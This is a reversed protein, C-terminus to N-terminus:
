KNEKETQAAAQEKKLRRRYARKRARAEAAEEVEDEAKMAKHIAILGVFGVGLPIIGLIALSVALITWISEAQKNDGFSNNLPQSAQYRITIPKGESVSCSYNNPLVGESSYKTGDVEFSYTVLCTDYGYEDTEKTKKTVTAEATTDRLTYRYSQESAGFSMFLGFIGAAILVICILRYIIRAVINTQVHRRIASKKNM